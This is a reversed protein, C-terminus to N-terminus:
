QMDGGVPMKCLRARSKVVNVALMVVEELDWCLLANFELLEGEKRLKSLFVYFLM